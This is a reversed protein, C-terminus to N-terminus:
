SPIVVGLSHPTIRKRISDLIGDSAYRFFFSYGGVPLPGEPVDLEACETSLFSHHLFATLCLRLTV